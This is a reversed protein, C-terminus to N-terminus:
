QPEGEPPIHIRIFHSVKSGVRKEFLDLWDFIRSWDNDQPDTMAYVTGDRMVVHM